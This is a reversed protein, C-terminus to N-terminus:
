KKNKKNNRNQDFIKIGVYIKSKKKRITQHKTLLTQQM